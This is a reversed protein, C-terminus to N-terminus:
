GAKNSAIKPTREDSACKRDQFAPIDLNPNEEGANRTHEAADVEAAVRPLQGIVCAL